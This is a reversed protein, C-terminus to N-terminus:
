AAPAAPEFLGISNGDLDAIYQFRGIPLPVPEGVVRGGAKTVRELTAELTDPVTLHVTPGSGNEAPKGPYLHAAIGGDARPLMAVPNPGMDMATLEYQFVANYFAMGADIDRVPIEAWAVAHSPIFSM